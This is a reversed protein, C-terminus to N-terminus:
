REYSAIVPEQESDRRWQQMAPLHLVADAYGQCVPDLRVGYTAFRSVVPAYFADAAGFRGFLFDGGAPRGYRNRCDRWIECVRDISGQVDRGIVFNPYRRQINMPLAERLPMFGSHMEACISRARARQATGQPWLQKEPFKEALYEVIALSDWVVIDGDKLIPVRGAPSHQRIREATEPTGLAIVVEDFPLGPATLALWARLSWSSYNKSGIVLTIRNAM